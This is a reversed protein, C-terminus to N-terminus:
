LNISKNNFFFAAGLKALLKDKIVMGKHHIIVTKYRRFLNSIISHNKFNFLKGFFEAVSRSIYAAVFANTKFLKKGFGSHDRFFKTPFIM